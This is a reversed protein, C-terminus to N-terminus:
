LDPLLEFDHIRCGQFLRYIPLHRCKGGAFPAYQIKQGHIPGPSQGYEFQFRGGVQVKGHLREVVPNAHLPM